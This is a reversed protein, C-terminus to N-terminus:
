RKRGERVIGIRGKRVRLAGIAHHRGLNLLLSKKDKINEQIDYIPERTGIQAGEEGREEGEAGPNFIMVKKRIPIIRDTHKGQRHPVRKGRRERLGYGKASKVEKEKLGSTRL